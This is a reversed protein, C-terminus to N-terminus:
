RFLTLAASFRAADRQAIAQAMSTLPLASFEGFSRQLPQLIQALLITELQVAV